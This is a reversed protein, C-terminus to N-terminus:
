LHPPPLLDCLLYSFTVAGNPTKEKGGRGQITTISKGPEETKEPEQLSLPLSPLSCCM